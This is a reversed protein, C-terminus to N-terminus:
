IVMDCFSSIFFMGIDFSQVKAEYVRENMEKVAM